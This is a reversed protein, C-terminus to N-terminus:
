DSHPSVQSNPDIKQAAKVGEQSGDIKGEGQHWTQLDNKKVDSEINSDISSFVDDVGVMKRAEEKTILGAAFLEIATKSNLHMDTALDNFVLSPAEFGALEAYEKFIENIFDEMYKQNGRIVSYFHRSLVVSEARNGNHSEGLLISSPVGFAAVVANLFYESYDSFNQPGPSLMSLTMGEPIFVQERGNIRGLVQGWLAMQNPSKTNTTGVIIPNATKVAAEAAAYEMNMLRVITDYGPQITSVGTFEDGLINFRLHEVVDKPIDVEIEKGKSDTTKQMYGVPEKSSKDLIIKDTEKYKKFTITLPHIHRLRTIKTGKQNYRKELYADGAIDCNISLQRFLNVGGSNEILESCAKVANEDAGVVKYGRSVLTDARVNVARAVFQNTLYLQFLNRISKRVGTIELGAEPLATTLAAASPNSLMKKMRETEQKSLIESAVEAQLSLESVLKEESFSKEEKLNYKIDQEMTDHRVM